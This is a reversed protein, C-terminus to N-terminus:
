NTCSCSSKRLLLLSTKILVLDGAAETGNLPWTVSSIVTCREILYCIKPKWERVTSSPTEPLRQCLGPAYIASFAKCRCKEEKLQSLRMGLTERRGRGRSRSLFLFGPFSITATVNLNRYPYKQADAGFQITYSHREIQFLTFYM